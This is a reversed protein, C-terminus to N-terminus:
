PTRAGKLSIGDIFVNSEYLFVHEWVEGGDLHPM